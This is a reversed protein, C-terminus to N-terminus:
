RRGGRHSPRGATSSGGGLSPPQVACNGVAPSGAEPSAPNSYRQRGADDPSVPYLAASGAAPQLASPNSHKIEETLYRLVISKAGDTQSALGALVAKCAAIPDREALIRAGQALYADAPSM